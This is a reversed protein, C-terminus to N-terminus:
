YLQRSLPTLYFRANREESAGRGKGPFPKPLEEAKEVRAVVLGDVLVGCLRRSSHRARFEPDSSGGGAPSQYSHIKLDYSGSYPVPSGM